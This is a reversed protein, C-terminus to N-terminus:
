AIPLMGCKGHGNKSDLRGVLVPVADKLRGPMYCTITEQTDRGRWLSRQLSTPPLNPLSQPTECKQRSSYAMYAACSPLGEEKLLTVSSDESGMLPINVHHQVSTM